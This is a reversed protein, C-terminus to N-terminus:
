ACARTKWAEAEPLGDWGFARESNGQTRLHELREMGEELTICVGQYRLRAGIQSAADSLFQENDFAIILEKGIDQALRLRDIFRDVNTM